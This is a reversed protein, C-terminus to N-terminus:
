DYDTVLDSDSVHDLFHDWTALPCSSFLEARPPDSRMRRERDAAAKRVRFALAASGDLQRIEEEERKKHRQKREEQDAKSEGAQPLDYEVTSQM